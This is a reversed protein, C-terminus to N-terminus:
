ISITTCAMREYDRFTFINKYSPFLFAFEFHAQPKDSFSDFNFIQCPPLYETLIPRYHTKYTLALARYRLRVNGPRSFFHYIASSFSVLPRTNTELTQEISSVVCSLDGQTKMLSNHWYKSMNFFMASLLSLSLFIAHYILDPSAENEWKGYM